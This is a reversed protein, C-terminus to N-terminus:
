DRGALENYAVLLREAMRTSSFLAARRRGALRPDPDEVHARLLELWRDRSFPACLAGGLGDLVIPAIGAPTALVPVDCALAELTALGFGERDSTVLVANASNVWFPVEAPPVGTLTLLEAAPVEAALERARDHRKVQRAPDAPFLLYPRDPDLGLRSRATRRELPRFRELDVGCPLV